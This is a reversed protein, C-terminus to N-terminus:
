KLIHIHGHTIRAKVSTIQSVIVSKQGHPM